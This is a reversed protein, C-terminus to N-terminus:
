IAAIWPLHDRYHYFTDWPMWEILPREDTSTAQYHRYPLLLDAETMSDLKKLMREHNQRLTQMVEALSMDHYRQQILANITDDDGEDWIEPPIDLAERKSKGELVALEAQDFAAIHIVHDKATWGTADTPRTLQEESLSALYTQLENWDADLQRLFDERSMLKDSGTM